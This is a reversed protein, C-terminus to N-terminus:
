IAEQCFESIRRALSAGDLQHYRLAEPPTGCAPFGEVAFHGIGGPPMLGREVLVPLLHSYLAGQPAHDELVFIMPAGAITEVLWDADIRNLWPMNIVCLSFGRRDLAEAAKLAEHLMVPGYAFLVADTGEVLTTGRGPSFRYGAPLEIICPSPGIVLRLAVNEIAENVAYEVARRTEAASCPQIVACNPLAALLSVDRLSQHSKGPGAPILGAYHLAYIIKTQEGANAYIQENARSALFSAFSNVVPLLGQRALGGALSVMDQEAIGNEIFRDPYAHEFARLRCDAALDASLVILDDREAALEVL